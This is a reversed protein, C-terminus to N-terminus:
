FVTVVKCQSLFNQSKAAAHILLADNNSVVLDANLAGTSKLARVVLPGGVARVDKMASSLEKRYAVLGNMVASQRAAYGVGYIEQGDENFIKPMLAPKLGLERADVILGTFPAGKTTLYGETPVILKMGEPAPRGVPWPQACCPCLPTSNLRLPSKGTEKPLVRDLLAGTLPLEVDVEVSMDSMSRSDVITFTQAVSKLDGELLTQNAVADSIRSNANLNIQKVARLLTEEAAIKARELAEVRQTRDHAIIASNGTTRIVLKAWDVSSTTDWKHVLLQAFATKMLALVLINAILASRSFVM